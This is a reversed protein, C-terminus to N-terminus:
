CIHLTYKLSAVYLLYAFLYISQVTFLKMETKSLQKYKNELVYFDIISSYLGVYVCVPSILFWFNLFFHIKFEWSM